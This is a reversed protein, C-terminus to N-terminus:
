MCGQSDITGQFLEKGNQLITIKNVGGLNFDKTTFKISGTIEFDSKSFITENDNSIKISFGSGNGLIQLNNFEESDYCFTYKHDIRFSERESTVPKENEYGEYGSMDLGRFFVKVTIDAPKPEVTEKKIETTDSQLTQASDAKIESSGNNSKCGIM